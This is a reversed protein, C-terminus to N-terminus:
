RGCNDPNNPQIVESAALAVATQALARGTLAAGTNLVIATGSLIIGQFSATTGLTTQTAVQWFINKAQAGGQLIVRAGNGVTLGEGVQFIWVDNSTGSLTVSAGHNLQVAGAWKYLGPKVTLGSINGAGLETADPWKRGAADKYANVMDGVATTMVLRTPGAYDAASVNGDVLPSTAFEGSADMILGCGTVAIAAISSVGIDGVIGSGATASIGSESLIVFTGALGLDVPALGKSGHKAPKAGSSTSSLLAVLAAMLVVSGSKPSIIKNM